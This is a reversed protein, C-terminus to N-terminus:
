FPISKMDIYVGTATTVAFRYSGPPLFYTAFNNATVATACAVWTSGDVALRQLVVNGGGWTAIMTTAYQGGCLNFTATTASINSYSKDEPQLYM